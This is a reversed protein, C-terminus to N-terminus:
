RTAGESEFEIVAARRPPRGARGGAEAAAAAGAAAAAAGVEGCGGGGCGQAGCGAAAREAGRGRGGGAAAAASGRGGKVKGIGLRPLGSNLGELLLCAKCVPQSTLYGCRTCSRPRRAGGGGGGAAAASGNGGAAAAAAGDSAAADSGGGGGGDGGGDGLCVTWSEASHILDMIASPRAASAELDKILDRAFGRAAYPAYVCETSFYDLRKFHAYLVIEKEYTWKFPKVRPLPGGAGTFASACRALRPADGRLINLLVTEAVDDANHGTAIKDAGVLSAGRDLAQRRFVGCFTCNNRTGIERVIEDMSWGYLDRYSLVTLPIGYTEENRKVTALSDDRYGAIGEDISLLLLDLGYGHRANLLTLMHALVTSDKGGSAAVAVREGARFLRCSTITAHVEDELARFFCPRCLQELTKPRKLAAREKNCTSCLAVM